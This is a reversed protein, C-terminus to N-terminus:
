ERKQAFLWAYLEPDKYAPDWSNHGVDPYETYKPKGGAKELADIMTKSWAPKVAGDKGGHFLWVPIKAIKAAQEKDGGGCVPAAAAFLEPRRCILDWTGFGGMSLGTIYLRKPDISFEKELAPILELVLREPESPEAPLKYNDQTLTGKLVKTLDESVWQADGPCQPAIVFCPYKRRLEPSAFNKVGHIMQKENDAGREGMGHLFVVLPYLKKPDYNEPTLLRYLLTKGKADKFTRKEFVGQKEEAANVM